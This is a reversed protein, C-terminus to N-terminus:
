APQPSSSRPILWLSSRRSLRLGSITSAARPPRGQDAHIAATSRLGAGFDIIPTLAKQQVLFIDRDETIIQDSAPVPSPATALL